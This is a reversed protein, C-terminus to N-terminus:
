SKLNHKRVQEQLICANRKFSPLDKISVNCFIFLYLIVVYYIPVNM